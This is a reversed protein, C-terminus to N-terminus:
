GRTCNCDYNAIRPSLKTPAAGPGLTAFIAHAEERGFAAIFMKEDAQTLSAFRTQILYFARAIAQEQEMTLGPHTAIYRKLHEEWFRCRVDVKSARYIAKRYVMPHALLDDYTEPLRGKNAEVWDHAEAWERSEGAAFV